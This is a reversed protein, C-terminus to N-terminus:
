LYLFTKTAAGDAGVLHTIVTLPQQQAVDFAAHLDVTDLGPHAVEEIAVSANKRGDRWGPTSSFRSNKTNGLLLWAGRRPCTIHNHATTYPSIEIGNKDYSYVFCDM